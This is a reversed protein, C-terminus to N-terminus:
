ESRSALLIPKFINPRRQTLQDLIKPEIKVVSRPLNSELLKFFKNELFDLKEQKYEEEEETTELNYIKKHSEYIVKSMKFFTPNFHGKIKHTIMTIPIFPTSLVAGVPVGIGEAVILGALAGAGLGLAGGVIVPEKKFTAFTIPLGIALGTLGGAIATIPVVVCEIGFSALIMGQCPTILLEETVPHKKFPDKFKSHFKLALRKGIKSKYKKDELREEEELFKTLNKQFRTETKDVKQLLQNIQQLATTPEIDLNEQAHLSQIVIYVSLLYSTLKYLKM